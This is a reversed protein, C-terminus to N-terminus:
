QEDPAQTHFKLINDLIFLARLITLLLVIIGFIVWYYLLWVGLVNVFRLIYIILTVFILSKIGDKLLRTTDIYLSSQCFKEMLTPKRNEDVNNTKFTILVTLFTLIFGALTLLVTTAESAYDFVTEEKPISLICQKVYYHITGVLTIGLLYDIMVPFRFYFDLLRKM